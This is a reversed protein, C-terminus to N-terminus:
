GLAIFDICTAELSDHHSLLYSHAFHHLFESTLPLAEAKAKAWKKMSYILNALAPFTAEGIRNGEFDYAFRLDPLYHSTAISAAVQLYNKVTKTGPQTM